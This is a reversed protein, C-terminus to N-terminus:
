NEGYRARRRGCMAARGLVPGRRLPRAAPLSTHIAIIRHLGNLTLMRRVIPATVVLRLRAGCARARRHVREILRVGSVDCFTTGSMDIVLADVGSNVARALAEHIQDANAIDVEAPMVAIMEAGEAGTRFIQVTEVTV